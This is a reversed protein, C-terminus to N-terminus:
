GIPVACWGRQPSRRRGAAVLGTLLERVSVAEAREKIGLMGAVMYHHLLELPGRDIVIRRPPVIAVAVFAPLAARAVMSM